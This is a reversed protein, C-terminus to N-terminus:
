RRSIIYTLTCSILQRMKAFSHSFTKNKKKNLRSITYIKLPLNSWIWLPGSGIGNMLCRALSRSPSLSVAHTRAQKFTFIASAMIESLFTPISHIQKLIVSMPHWMRLPLPPCFVEKSKSVCQFPGSLHAKTRPHPLNHTHTHTHSRLCKYVHILM